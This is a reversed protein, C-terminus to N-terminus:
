PKRAFQLTRIVSNSSLIKWRGFLRIQRSYKEDDSYDFKFLTNKMTPIISNSSLIKWRRFLRIRRFYKEDDSYGFKVRTNKMTRIVSNSSLIKWRVFLRIQHTNKMVYEVLRRFKSMNWEAFSIVDYNCAIPFLGADNAQNGSTAKASMRSRSSRWSAMNTYTVRTPLQPEFFARQKLSIMKFSYRLIQNWRRLKRICVQTAGNLIHLLYAIALERVRCKVVIGSCTRRVLRRNVAELSKYVDGLTRTFVNEKEKLSTLEYLHFNTFHKGSWKWLICRGNAYYM